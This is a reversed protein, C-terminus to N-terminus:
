RWEEDKREDREKEMVDRKVKRVRKGDRFGMWTEETEEKRGEM